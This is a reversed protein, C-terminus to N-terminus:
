NTSDRTDKRCVPCKVNEKCLWHKICDKHFIHNCDLTVVYEEINYQEMCITCKKDNLQTLDKLKENKFKEFENESITIKVSELDSANVYENTDVLLSNIIRNTIVDMIM